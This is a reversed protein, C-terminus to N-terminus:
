KKARRRALALGGLGLGLIALTAPEPVVNSELEEMEYLNYAFEQMGDNDFEFTLTWAADGLLAEAFSFYNGESAFSDFYSTEGGQVLTVRMSGLFDLPDGGELSTFSLAYGDALRSATRADGSLTVHNHGESARIIYPGANGNVYNGNSPGGDPGGSVDGPLSGNAQWSRSQVLKYEFGEIRYGRVIEAQAPVAVLFSVVLALGLFVGGVKFSQLSRLMGDGKKRRVIPFLFLQSVQHM